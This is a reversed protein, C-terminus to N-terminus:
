DAPAIATRRTPKTVRLALELAETPSIDQRDLMQFTPRGNRASTFRLTYKPRGKYVHCALEWETPDTPESVM